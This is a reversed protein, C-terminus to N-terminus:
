VALIVRHEDSLQARRFSGTIAGTNDLMEDTMEESNPAIKSLDLKLMQNMPQSNYNSLSLQDANGFKFHSHGLSSRNASLFDNEESAQALSCFNKVSKVNM